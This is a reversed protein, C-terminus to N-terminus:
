ALADLLAKAEQLDATDFGETFWGYIPALLERAETRRDQQQWLRSLSMAARLELSKAQQRCAVALAQLFCTEVQSAEARAHRWLLEGRLRHVEAEWWREGTTELLTQAEALLREGAEAQGAQASAEALLTLFYPRWIGVVGTAQLAALGQQIQVMAEEPQGQATLAEGQFITGTALYLAFGHALCLAVLADAQTGAVQPECRLQHILTVFFQAYVLSPPHALEQALTLANYAQARAQDPAGLLWLVVADHSLCTVSPDFGYRLALAGHQQPNYLAQGQQAHAHALGLEGRHAYTRSLAWHAVLLHASDHTSQALQLLQAALEQATQLAGVIQSYRWMGQLALFLQSTNGVQHCLERARACAHEVEPAGYGKIVMWVPVLAIQIDLEQQLRESTEPVTTLVELGRTLHRIAELHASRESARQGAHYWYRVAKEILSAETYHHALLEPQAEASAPFEAELVQAIRQHYQQRTSKLLSQYAADQILAHKFMYTAQPPVGRQYVIEAEVLRGLERQLTAEDLQSVTSLLDYAFQRGIVAAYQAVAKATVLRDLRAM